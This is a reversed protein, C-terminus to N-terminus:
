RLSYTSYTLFQAKEKLIYLVGQEMKMRLQHDQKGSSQFISALTLSMVGAGVVVKLWNHKDIGM